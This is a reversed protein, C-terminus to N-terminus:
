FWDSYLVESLQSDSSWVCVSRKCIDSEIQSDTQCDVGVTENWNGNRQIASPAVHLIPELECELKLRALSQFSSSNCPRQLLYM